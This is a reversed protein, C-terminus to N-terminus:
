EPIGALVLAAWASGALGAFLPTYLLTDLRAFPTTRVTKFFGIDRFDGVVRLTAVALAAAALWWVWAPSPVWAVWPILGAFCAAAMAAGLCAVRGPQALPESTNPDEPYTHKSLISSGLAWALHLLAGLGAISAGLLVIGSLVPRPLADASDLAYLGAALFAPWAPHGPVLALMALGLVLCAIGVVVAPEAGAVIAAFALWAASGAHWTWRLIRGADRRSVRAKWKGDALLPRLILAEGALAHALALCCLIGAAIATNM